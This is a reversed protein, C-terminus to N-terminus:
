SDPIKLTGNTLPHKRRKLFVTMLEIPKKSSRKKM